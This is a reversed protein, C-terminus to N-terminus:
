CRCHSLVRQVARWASWRRIWAAEVRAQLIEPVSSSRANALASIFQATEANWRGGIEAALVVLRAGEDGALEPHTRDKKRREIELATGNVHTAMRRATGDRHLPSVLTTDTTLQAGGFLTLGDAVVELRRSDLANFTAPDM